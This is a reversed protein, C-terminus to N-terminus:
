RAVTSRSKRKAKRARLMGRAWDDVEKPIPGHKREFDALLADIRMHQARLRLAYDVFESYNGDEGILFSVAKDTAKSITVTRRVTGEEARRGVLVIM